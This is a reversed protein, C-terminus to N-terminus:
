NLLKNLIDSYELVRAKDTHFNITKEYGNKAIIEAFKQNNQLFKIREELEELSNYSVYEKGDEFLQDMNKFKESIMCSRLGTIEFMRINGACDGCGETHINLSHKSNNISKYYDIGFVPKKVSKYFLLKLPGGYFNINKENKFNEIEELIKQVRKFKKKFIFNTFSNILNYIKILIKYILKSKKFFYFNIFTLYHYFNNREHIHCNILKNKLLYNLFYYRKKHKYYGDSYSSGDFTILKERKNFNKLSLHELIKSNFCHYILSSSNCYKKLSELMCLNRFIVHSFLKYYNNDRPPFGSLLISIIKFKLKTNIDKIQNLNLVDIDRYIIINPKFINLFKIINEFYDNTPQINNEICLYKIYDKNNTYIEEILFGQNELLNFDFRSNNLNSKVTEIYNKANNLAEIKNIDFCNNYIDQALNSLVVIKM